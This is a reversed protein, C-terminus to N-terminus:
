SDKEYWDNIFIALASLALFGALFWFVPQALFYLLIFILAQWISHCKFCFFGERFGGDKNEMAWVKSRLKEFIANPGTEQQLMYTIRWVAIGGIIVAVLIELM